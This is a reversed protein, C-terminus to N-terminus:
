SLEENAVSIDFCFCVFNIIALVIQLSMMSINGEIAYAVALGGTWFFMVLAFASAVLAFIGLARM